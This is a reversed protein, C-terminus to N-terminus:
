PSPVQAIERAEEKGELDISATAAPSRRTEEPPPWGKLSRVFLKRLAGANTKLNFEKEVHARAALALRDALEVDILLRQISEALAGADEPDTVLGNRANVVAEPIGSVRTSVVPVGFAMAELIVTPIGDRDGDAAIISPQALVRARSYYRRRLRTLPVPGLLRVMGELGSDRIQQALRDKQPGEGAIVCRFREGRASLEQLAEILVHFGKKEILRGVALILPRPTDPRSSPLAFAYEDPRIGIHIPRIRGEKVRFGLSEIFRKNEHSVAVVFRALKVRKKLKHSEQHRHGEWYLDKAHATFSFPLGTIMSALKAVRTPGSAFHAHFHGIGERVATDAVVGAQLFKEMARRDRRGLAFRLASAYRRPSRALCRLHALTTRPSFIGRPPPLVTTRAHVQEAELQRHGTPKKMSFIRVEIGQREIEIIENVVFTESFRPFMKLVYGVRSQPTEIPHRLDQVKGLITEVRESWDESAAREAARRGMWERRERDRALEIIVDRLEGRDGSRFLRGCSPEVLDPIDGIRPAVVPRGVALYELIKMPSFYFDRQPLYPAALIDAARLLSPVRDQTVAGSFHVVEDLGRSRLAREIKKREPGEGVYLLRLDPIQDHAQEFAELLLRGGHWPKLSGSFAVVIEKESFGLDGRVENGDVSRNFRSTDVGNPLVSVKDPHIGIELAWRRLPHSVVFLHDARRLIFRELMRTMRKWRLVRFRAEEDALPANVELLWPIGRRRCLWGTALACLAYREYVFDPRLERLLVRVNRAM